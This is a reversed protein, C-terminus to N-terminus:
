PTHTLHQDTIPLMSIILMLLLSDNSRQELHHVPHVIAIVATAATGCCVHM